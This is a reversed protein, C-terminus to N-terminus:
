LPKKNFLVGGGKRLNSVERGGKRLKGKFNLQSNNNKVRSLTGGKRTGGEPRGGTWMRTYGLATKNGNEMDSVNRVGRSLSYKSFYHKNERVERPDLKKARGYPTSGDRQGAIGKGGLEGGKRLQTSGTQLISV